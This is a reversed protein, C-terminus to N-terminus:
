ASPRANKRKWAEQLGRRRMRRNYHFAEARKSWYRWLGVLALIVAITWFPHTVLLWVLAEGSARGIGRALFAEWLDRM